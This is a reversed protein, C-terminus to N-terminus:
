LNKIVVFVSSWRELENVARAFVRGADRKVSSFDVEGFVLQSKNFHDASVHFILCRRGLGNHGIVLNQFLGADFGLAGEV